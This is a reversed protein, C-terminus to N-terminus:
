FEGDMIRQKIREFEDATVYGADRLQGLSRLQQLTLSMDARSKPSAAAQPAVTSVQRAAATSVESTTTQQDQAEQDVAQAEVKARRRTEVEAQIRQNAIEARSKAVEQGALPSALLLTSLLFVFALRM